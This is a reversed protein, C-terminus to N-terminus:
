HSLNRSPKVSGVIYFVRSVRDVPEQVVALWLPLLLCFLTKCPHINEGLVDAVVELGGQVPQMFM